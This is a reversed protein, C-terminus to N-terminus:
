QKHNSVFLFFSSFKYIDMNVVYNSAGDFLEKLKKAEEFYEGNEHTEYM